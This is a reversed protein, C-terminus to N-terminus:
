KEFQERLIRKEEEVFNKGRSSMGLDRKRKEKERFTEVKQKKTEGLATEDDDQSRKSGAKTGREGTVAVENENEEKEIVYRVPAKSIESTNSSENIHTPPPIATYKSSSRAEHADSQDTISSNNDQTTNKTLKDWNIHHPDIHTTLFHPRSIMTFLTDPSPLKNVPDQLTCFYM